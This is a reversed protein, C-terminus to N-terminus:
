GRRRKHEPLAAYAPGRRAAPHAWPMHNAFSWKQQRKSVTKGDPSSPPAGKPALRPGVPRTDSPHEGKRLAGPRPQAYRAHGPREPANWYEGAGRRSAAQAV